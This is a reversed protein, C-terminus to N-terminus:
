NLKVIIHNDIEVEKELTVVDEEDIPNEKFKFCQKEGHSPKCDKCNLM